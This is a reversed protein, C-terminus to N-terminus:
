ERAAPPKGSPGAPAKEEPRERIGSSEVTRPEVMIASAQGLLILLEPEIEKSILVVTHEDIM